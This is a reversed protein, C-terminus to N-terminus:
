LELNKGEYMRKLTDGLSQEKVAIERIRGGKETIQDILAGASGAAKMRFEYYLNENSNLVSFDGSNISNLDAPAELHVKVLKDSQYSQIFESLQGDYQISGRDLLILRNALYEIDEMDHTTLIVTVQKDRNLKRITNLVVDKTLIDLGITPEDLFLIPPDHLMSAALDARMRQGLSLKRTQQDLFESLNLLQILEHIREEYINNPIKYISKLLDYSERLPLDWWLQTKQGFVVGIKRAVKKRDKQPDTGDIRIMGSTARLIGTLMKITTSKGAGNPGLYGVLEGKQIRFNIDKVAQIKHSEAFFLGAVSGIIGKKRKRVTFEKNLNEVEIVAQSM